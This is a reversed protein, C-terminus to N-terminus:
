VSPVSICVTILTAFDPLHAFSPLPETKLLPIYWLNTFFYKYMVLSFPLRTSHIDTILPWLKANFIDTNLTSNALSVVCSYIHLHDELIKCFVLFFDCMCGIGHSSCARISFFPDVAWCAQGVVQINFLQYIGKRTKSTTGKQTKSTTGKRTKSPLLSTSQLTM